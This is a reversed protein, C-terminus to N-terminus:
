CSSQNEQIHISALELQISGSICLALSEAFEAVSPFVSFVISQWLGGHDRGNGHTIINSTERGRVGPGRRARRAMAPVETSIIAAMGVDGGRSGAGKSVDGGRSGAGKGVDGGKGVCGDRDVEGDGAERWRPQEAGAYGPIRRIGAGTHETRGLELVEGPQSSQRQRNERQPGATGYIGTM